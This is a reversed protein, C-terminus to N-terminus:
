IDELLTDLAVERVDDWTPFSHREKPGASVTIATALVAALVITRM